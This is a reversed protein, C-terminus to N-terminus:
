LKLKENTNKQPSIGVRDLKLEIALAITHAVQDPDLVPGRAYEEAIDQDSRTGQYNQRLMNTQTKGPIIETFLIAPYDRKVATLSQRLAIKSGVMFITYSIPDDASTSTIYIFQGTTRQRTYQKALLLPATFNVTVHNQQNQWSNDHWGLYAGGNAGACNVVVDYDSLDLCDIAAFDSLDFEQRTPATVVHGQSDLLQKVAQGIGSNGGTLFIKM